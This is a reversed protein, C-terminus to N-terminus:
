DTWGFDGGLYEYLRQNHPNFYDALRRKLHTDMKSYAADNYKKFDKLEWTPLNLFEVIQNFIAPPNQFFDESKLILIQEKPFLSMWVKLQDVYIGRSLYSYSRHNFSSYNEDAYMKEIEGSLREEERDMAEEFSLTERGERVEHHYHSYARSIPNRLLVILKVRPVVKLIRKPAHPHFIYYPSGEGVVCSHKHVKELYRKYLFSPFHSRYWRVGKNFNLDFFHIEKKTPIICPHQVLNRFISTSGGRQVGIVIFDPLQRIPSTVIRELKLGRSIAQQIM